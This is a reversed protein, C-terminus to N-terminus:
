RLQFGETHMAERLRELLEAQNKYNIPLDLTNFCTHAVPRYSGSIDKLDVIITLSACGGAPVAESGTVFKFLASLEEESLDRDIARVMWERTKHAARKDAAASRWRVNALLDRRSVRCDGCVMLQLDKPSLLELLQQPVVETLGKAFMRLMEQAHKHCGLRTMMCLTCYEVFNEKTVQIDGGREKLPYARDYRTVSFYLESDEISNQYECLQRLGKYLFPDIEDLDEAELPRGLVVKFFATALRLPLVFGNENNYLAFGALRGVAHFFVCADPDDLAEYSIYMAANKGASRLYHQEQCHRAFDQLLAKSVGGVDVSIEKDWQVTVNGRLFDGSGKTVARVVSSIPRSSDYYIKSSRFLRNFAGKDPFQIKKMELFAARRDSLAAAALEKPFLGGPQICPFGPVLMTVHGCISKWLAEPPVVPAEAAAGDGADGGAGADTKQSSLMMTVVVDTVEEPSPLVKKEQVLMNVVQNAVQSPFGMAAVSQVVEAIQEPTIPKVKPEPPKAPAAVTATPLGVSPPRSRSSPSYALAPVLPASTPMNQQRTLWILRQAFQDYSPFTGTECMANVTETALVILDGALGLDRQAMFVYATSLSDREEATMSTIPVGPPPSPAVEIARANADVAFPTGPSGSLQQELIAPAPVAHVATPVALAPSVSVAGEVDVDFVGMSGWSAPAEAGTQDWRVMVHCGCPFAYTVTGPGAPLETAAASKHVRRGVTESAKQPASGNELVPTIDFQGRLGWRYRNERGNDWRVNVWGAISAPGTVRGLGNGSDQDGWEWAPGRRVRRGIVHQSPLNGVGSEPVIDLDYCGGEAGWRYRNSSGNDWYVSLWSRGVVAVAVGLQNGDQDGWKWAPGRAVRRGVVEELPIENHAAPALEFAGDGWRYDGHHGTDWQVRLLSEEFGQVTGLGFGDDAGSVWDPGRRVRKGVMQEATPKEAPLTPVVFVDFFRRHGFRYRNRLGCDWEVSAWGPDELVGTVTGTGHQDQDGWRWAPARRVKRGVLWEPPANGDRDKRAGSGKRPTNSGGHSGGCSGTNNGAAAASSSSAPPPALLTPADASSPGQRENTVPAAIPASATLSRALPPPSPGSSAVSMPSSPAATNNRPPQAQVAPAASSSSSSPTAIMPPGRPMSAGTNGM